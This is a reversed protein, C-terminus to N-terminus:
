LRMERHGNIINSWNNAAANIWYYEHSCWGSTNVTTNWTNVGGTGETVRITKLSSGTGLCGGGCLSRTETGKSDPTSGTPCSHYSLGTSIAIESGPPLNTTGSVPILADVHMNDVPDILISKYYPVPSIIDFETVAVGTYADDEVVLRYHGPPNGKMGFAYYFSNPGGTNNSMIKVHARLVNRNKTEDQMNVQLETDAPFNTTGTVNLVSSGTINFTADTTFNNIPDTRIWSSGATAVPSPIASAQRDTLNFGTHNGSQQAICGSGLSCLVLFAIFIGQYYTFQISKDPPMNILIITSAM